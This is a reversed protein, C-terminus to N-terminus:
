MMLTAPLAGQTLIYTDFTAGQEIAESVVSNGQSHVFLHLRYDSFRTHLQDMYTKM